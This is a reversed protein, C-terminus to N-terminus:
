DNAICFFNFLLQAEEKMFNKQTIEGSDLKIELETAQEAIGELQEMYGM